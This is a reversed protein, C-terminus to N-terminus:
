AYRSPITASNFLYAPHPLPDTPEDGFSHVAAYDRHVSLAIAELQVAKTIFIFNLFSDHTATANTLPKPTCAKNKLGTAPSCRDRLNITFRLETAGVIEAGTAVFMTATDVCM